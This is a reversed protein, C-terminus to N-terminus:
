WKNLRHTGCPKVHQKTNEMTLHSQPNNGSQKSSTNGRQKVIKVHTSSTYWQPQRHQVMTTSSTQDHKRIHQGDTEYINVM